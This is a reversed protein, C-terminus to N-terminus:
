RKGNPRVVLVPVEAGRVLKDAVSGLLWRTAPSRAHTALAIVDGRGSGELVAGAVRDDIVVRTTVRIGEAALRAGVRDLAARGQKTMEDILAADAAPQSYVMGDPGVIPLPAVAHFLEIQAGFLRALAAAPGVAAEARESGDLPVIVRRVEPERTLDVEDGEHPRLALLPVTTRRILEDAVSGLWFRSLVGRGHTTMVVLDANVAVTHEALMAAVPGELLSTTVAAGPAAKRVRWSALDLAVQEDRPLGPHPPHAAKAHPTLVTTLRLEGGGRRAIAVALPLANESQLSGDLPVVINRFM